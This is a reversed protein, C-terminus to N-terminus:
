TWPQIVKVFESIMTRGRSGIMPELSTMIAAVGLRSHAESMGDTEMRDSGSMLLQWLNEFTWDRYLLPRNLTRNSTVLSQISGAGSSGADLSGTDKEVCFSAEGTRISM